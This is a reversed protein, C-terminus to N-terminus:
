EAAAEARGPAGSLTLNARGDTLVALGPTLGRRRASSVQALAERLGAALPTGGGSPLAALRRKAAALARTPPLVTEAGPGRFAILGVHDRRAYAEALLLEVAGKAEGLRALATSGSADVVFFIARERREAFRRLRIDSPLIIVRRGPGADDGVNRNVGLGNQRRLTQWPAAASLTAALDLPARGDLPGPRAPLPRGRRGGARRRATSFAGAGGSSRAAARAAAELAALVGEPVSAAASAILSEAAGPAGPDTNEEAPEADEPPVQPELAARDPAHEPGEAGLTPDIRRRPLLTLAVASELDDRGVAERGALAAHARAARLAFLPARLSGVGLAAGTMVLDRLDDASSSVGALAEGGADIADLDIPVAGIRASLGELSVVLGLRDRLAEPPAEDPEAGEDLALLAAGRARWADLAQALLAAAGPELREAMPAVLVREGILPAVGASRVPHGARLSAGLDLGGFLADASPQGGLRHLRRRGMRRLAAALADLFLDRAAGARARLLLGGLGGPDVAFISLATAALRWSDALAQDSLGGASGASGTTM